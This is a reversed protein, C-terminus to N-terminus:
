GNFQLVKKSLSTSENFASKLSERSKKKMTFKANSIPLPVRIPQSNGLAAAKAKKDAEENGRVGKHGPCWHINVKIEPNEALLRFISITMSNRSSINELEQIASFIRFSYINKISFHLSLIWQVAKQIAFLENQYVTNEPQLKYTRSISTLPTPCICIISCGTKSKIKSSDTSIHIESLKQTAKATNISSKTDQISTNITKYDYPAPYELLSAPSEYADPDLNFSSAMNYLEAIHNSAVHEYHDYHKNYRILTTICREKTRDIIPVM